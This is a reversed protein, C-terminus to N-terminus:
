AGKGKGAMHAELADDIAFCDSPSFSQMADAIGRLLTISTNPHLGDSYMVVRIAYDYAEFLAANLTLYQEFTGMRPVRIILDGNDFTVM